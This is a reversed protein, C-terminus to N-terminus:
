PSNIKFYKRTQFIKLNITVHTSKDCPSYEFICLFKPFRCEIMPIYTPRIAVNKTQNFIKPNRYRKDVGFINVGERLQTQVKEPM